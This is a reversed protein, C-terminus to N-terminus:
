PTESGAERGACMDGVSRKLWRDLAAFSADWRADHVGEESFFWFRKNYAKPRIVERVSVRTSCEGEPALEIRYWRQDRDSEQITAFLREPLAEKTQEVAHWTKYGRKWFLLRTSGAQVMDGTLRQTDVLEAQWRVRNKDDDIFAWIDRASYPMVKEYTLEFGADIVLVLRFVVSFVVAAIVAVVSKHLLNWDRFRDRM